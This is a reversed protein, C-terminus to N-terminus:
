KTICEIMPLGEIAYFQNIGIRRGILIEHLHKRPTEGSLTYNKIKEIESCDYRVQWIEVRKPHVKNQFLVSPTKDDWNTYSGVYKDDSSKGDWLHLTPNMGWFSRRSKSTQLISLGYQSWLALGANHLLIIM